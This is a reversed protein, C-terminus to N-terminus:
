EHEKGIYEKSTRRDVQGTNVSCARTDSARPSPIWCLGGCVFGGAAAETWCTHPRLLASCALLECVSLTRLVLTSSLFSPPCPPGPPLAWTASLAWLVELLLSYNYSVTM